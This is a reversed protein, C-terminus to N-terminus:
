SKSFKSGNIDRILVFQLCERGLGGSKRETKSPFLHLLLSMVPDIRPCTDSKSTHNSVEATDLKKKTWVGFFM